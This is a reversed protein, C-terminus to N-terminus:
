GKTIFVMDRGEFEIRSAELFESLWNFTAESYFCIHTPDNKYQWTKFRETSIVRQTMVGLVGGPNLMKWLKILEKNPAHLHEIVETMVIADYKKNLVSTDNFYFVDFLSVQYGLQTLQQALAPAPGCGFDLIRSNKSIRANLPAVIRSLFKNYGEDSVNNDHLDYEAKETQQNPWSTPNAFVLCCHSCKLYSRKKDEFFHSPKAAKCLPCSSM